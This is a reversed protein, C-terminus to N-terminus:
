LLKTQANKTISINVHKLYNHQCNLINEIEAKQLSNLLLYDKSSKLNQYRAINDRIIQQRVQLNNTTLHSRIEPLQTSYNLM